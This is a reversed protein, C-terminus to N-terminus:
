FSPPLASEIMRRLSPPEAEGRELRDLMQELTLLARQVAYQQTRRSGAYAMATVGIAPIIAIPIMFGMVIAAGTAASGVVAGAVSQKAAASRLGTFNAHLRVLTSSDEVPVVTAIVDTARVLAYDRSGFARRLSGVLGRAPEWVLTDSRQRVTRLLEDRQMWRDLNELLRAPKGRVVRQAAVEGPGFLRYSVGAGSEAMPVIQAREEALAQKIHAPSLGVERGLEVVQAETLSDAADSAEGAATQLAAARALVRELAVRTVPLKSPEM